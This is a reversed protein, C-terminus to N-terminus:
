KGFKTKPNPFYFMAVRSCFTFWACFTTSLGINWSKFIGDIGQQLLQNVTQTGRFGIIIAGYEPLKAVYGSCQGNQCPYSYQYVDTVNGIANKLCTEIAHADKAYAAASVPLM